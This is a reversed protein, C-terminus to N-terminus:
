NCIPEIKQGFVDIIINAKNSYQQVAIERVEVMSTTSSSANNSDDNKKLYSNNLNFERRKEKEREEEKWHCTYCYGCKICALQTRNTCSKCEQYKISLMERLYEHPLAITTITAASQM